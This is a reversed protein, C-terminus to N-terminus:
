GNQRGITELYIAIEAPTTHDNVWDLKLAKGVFESCIFKGNNNNILIKIGTLYKIAIEVIQITSYQKGLQKYVFDMDISSDPINYTTIVKHNELFVELHTCNVMGNSAQFVLYERVMAVHSFSTGQYKRILWAGLKWKKPTSTIIIM